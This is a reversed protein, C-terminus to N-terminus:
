HTANKKREKIKSLVKVTIEEKTIVLVSVYIIVGILVQIISGFANAPLIRGSLNVVVMMVLSTLLYILYSRNKFNINVKKRISFYQILTVSAEAIVSGIIAGYAGMTPILMYNICFNIVAGSIVSASYRNYMGVPVMYQTGTVNSMSIFVIIPAGICVLSGIIPSNPLYWSMLNPAVAIMGCCMPLALLMAIRMTSNIFSEAKEKGNEDNYFVNTVRPLMVSGISTIFYLFMKVFNMSTKYFELHEESYLYGLMTQDLMTYVSIAITPVFLQFTAKFHHKYATVLSVKEFSIYQKLQIFMIVQGLIESGANILIYKWLDEPTKCILFILGVGVIKVITNRVSASKFDEVGYFLWTIDVMSALMTIGTLLYAYLNESVTFYCFIYYAIMAILMNCIQMYFIEFFTTNLKEKDNRVKAIERNGYTNVGLTGFLIFWSMINSAFSSIGLVSPTIHAYTYPVLVMPLIIRVLQFLVNYIYNRILKSDM